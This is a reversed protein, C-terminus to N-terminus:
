TPSVLILEFATIESDGTIIPMQWEVEVQFANTNPGRTPAAMQGPVTQVLAGFLNAESIVSEGRENVASVKAQILDKLSFSFPQAWLEQMSFACFNKSINEADAGNCLAEFEAYGGDYTKLFVRFATIPKYNAFPPVWSIKVSVEFIEVSPALMLDPAQATQFATEASWEESM